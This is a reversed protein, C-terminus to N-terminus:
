SQKYTIGAAFSAGVIAGGGTTRVVHRVRLFGAFTTVERRSVGLAAFTDTYLVFWVEGNWSDEIIRDVATLADIASVDTFAVVTNFERAAAEIDGPGGYSQPAGAAASERRKNRLLDANKGNM